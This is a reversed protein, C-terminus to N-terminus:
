VAHLPRRWMAPQRCNCDRWRDDFLDGAIVVFAAGAEIALDVLRAL